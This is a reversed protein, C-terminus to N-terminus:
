MWSIKGVRSFNIRLFIQHFAKTRCAAHFSTIGRMQNSFVIVITIRLYIISM